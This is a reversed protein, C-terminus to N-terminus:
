LLLRIQLLKVAPVTHHVFVDFFVNQFYTYDVNSYGQTEESRNIVKTQLPRYLVTVKRGHVSKNVFNSLSDSNATTMFCTAFLM